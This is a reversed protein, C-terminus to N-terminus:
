PIGSLGLPIEILNNNNLNDRVQTLEQDNEQLIMLHILIQLILSILPNKEQFQYVLYNM